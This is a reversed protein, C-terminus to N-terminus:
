SGVHPRAAPLGDREDAVMEAPRRGHVAWAEFSALTAAFLGSAPDVALSSDEVWGLRGLFFAIIGLPLHRRGGVGSVFNLTPLLAGALKSTRVDM